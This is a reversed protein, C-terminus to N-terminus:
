TRDCLICVCVCVCLVVCVCVVRVNWVFWVCVVCMGCLCCVCWVCWLCACVVCVCVCWVCVSCVCVCVLLEVCVASGFTGGSFWQSWPASYANYTWWGSDLCFEVSWVKRANQLEAKLYKRTNLPNQSTHLHTLAFTTVQSMVSWRDANYCSRLLSGSSSVHPTSVHQLVSWTHLICKTSTCSTRFVLEDYSGRYMCCDGQLSPSCVAKALSGTRVASYVSKMETIFVLWNISYTACTATQEWIFVFCM